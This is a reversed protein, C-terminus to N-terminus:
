LKSLSQLGVLPGCLQLCTQNTGAGVGAILVHLAAALTARWARAAPMLALTGRRRSLQLVLRHISETRSFYTMPSISAHSRLSYYRHTAPTPQIRLILCIFLTPSPDLHTSISLHCVLTFLKSIEMLSDIICLHGEGDGGSTLLDPSGDLTIAQNLDKFLDASCHECIGAAGAIPWHFRVSILFPHTEVSM